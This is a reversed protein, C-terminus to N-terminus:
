VRHPPNPFQEMAQRFANQNFGGALRRYTRQWFDGLSESLEIREVLPIVEIGPFGFRQHRQSFRVRAIGPKIYAAIATQSNESM